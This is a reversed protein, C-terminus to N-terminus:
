RNDQEPRPAEVFPRFAEDCLEGKRVIFYETWAPVSSDFPVIAADEHLELPADSFCYTHSFGAAAALWLPRIEICETQTELSFGRRECAEALLSHVEFGAGQTSFTLGRLDNVSVERRHALPSDKSALLYLQGSRKAVYDFRPDRNGVGVIFGCDFGGEAVGEKIEEDTGYLFEYRMGTADLVPMNDMMFLQGSQGLSEMASYATACRVTRAEDPADHSFAQEVKEFAAVAEDSMRYLKRAAETPELRNRHVVFLPEGLECELAKIVHRLGQRTIFLEDASRQMNQNEYVKRFYRLQKVDM